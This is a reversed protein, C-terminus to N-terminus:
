SKPDTKIPLGLASYTVYLSLQSGGFPVVEVIILLLEVRWHFMAMNSGKQSPDTRM